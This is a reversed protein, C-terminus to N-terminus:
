NDDGIHRLQEVDAEYLTNSPDDQQALLDQRKFQALTRSVSETTVGLIAAMEDCTLLRVEGECAEPEFESLFAVLRAVRGRIPGTSFETIWRDAEQLYGHWRELLTAYAQADEDRLRELASAPVQLATVSTLAVASHDKSDSLMADLGLISGPRHLRVIRERGNPLHAILKLLGATVFFLTENETGQHYLTVHSPYSVRRAHTLLLRLAVPADQGLATEIEASEITAGSAPTSTGPTPPGGKDHATSVTDRRFGLPRPLTAPVGVALLM